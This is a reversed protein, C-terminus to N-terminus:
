KAIYKDLETAMDVRTRRFYSSVLQTNVACPANSIGGGGRGRVGDRACCRVSGENQGRGGRARAQM